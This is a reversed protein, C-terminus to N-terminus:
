QKSPKKNEKEPVPQPAAEERAAPKEPPLYLPGRYGCAALLMALAILALFTRM